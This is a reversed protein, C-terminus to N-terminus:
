SNACTESVLGATSDNLQYGAKPPNPQLKHNPIGIVPAAAMPCLGKSHLLCKSGEAHLLTSENEKRAVQRRWGGPNEGFRRKFCTNFLGLHNFGCDEAVNIVKADTDRLLSVAKLLRMEMRLAAVSHGFFQHFLRNLHRRSCRFKDALEGVSLNLLEDEKLNEFAEAIRGEVSVTSMRQSHAMKFEESFVAAAIRLLHSRHDLNFQLPVSEILRHCEIAMASSAPFLKPSKFDTTVRQLLSIEKGDFLPFLHEMRMSFSWLVLEAGNSVFLKAGTSGKIVLMDGPSLRREGHQTVCRGIGGKLFLFFFGERDLSEEGLSKLRTMRLTMYDQALMEQGM